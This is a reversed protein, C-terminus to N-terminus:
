PRDTSFLWRTRPAETTSVSAPRVEGTNQFKTRSRCHSDNAPTGYEYWISSRSSRSRNFAGEMRVSVCAPPLSAVPSIALNWSVIARSSSNIGLVEAISCANARLNGITLRVFKPSGTSGSTSLLLALAPHILGHKFAREYSPKFAPEEFSSGAAADFVWDPQYAAVLKQQFESALNGPLLAIAHGAELAGLYAAVSAVDNRAFVFVLAKEAGSFQVAWREIEAYLEGYSYWRNVASDFLALSASDPRQGAFLSMIRSM